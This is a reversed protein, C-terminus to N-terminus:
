DHKDDLVVLTVEEEKGSNVVSKASTKRLSGIVKVVAYCLACVLALSLIGFITLYIAVSEAFNCTDWGQTCLGNSCCDTCCDTRDECVSGEDQCTECRARGFSYMPTICRVNNSEDCCPTADLMDTCIDGTNICTQGFVVIETLLLLSLLLKM